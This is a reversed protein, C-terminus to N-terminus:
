ESDGDHYTGALIKDEKPLNNNEESKTNVPEIVKRKPKNIMPRFPAAPPKYVDQLHDPGQKLSPQRVFANSTSHSDHRGLHPQWIPEVVSAPTAVKSKYDVLNHLSEHVESKQKLLNIRIKKPDQEKEVVIHREQSYTHRHPLPPAFSPAYAPQDTERRGIIDENLDGHKRKAKKGPFRPMERPFSFNNEYKQHFDKFAQVLDTFQVPNPVMDELALLIDTAQPKTRGAHEALDQAEKGIRRIYTAMVDVMANAAGTQVSEFGAGRGLIHAVAMRSVVRAYEEVSRSTTSTDTWEDAM